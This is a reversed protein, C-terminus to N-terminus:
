RYKIAIFGLTVMIAAFMGWQTVDMNNFTWEVNTCVKDFYRAVVPM